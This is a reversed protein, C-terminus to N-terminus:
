FYPFFFALRFFKMWLKIFFYLIIEWNNSHCKLFNRFIKRFFVRVLHRSSFKAPTKPSIRTRIQSFNQFSGCFENNSRIGFFDDYFYFNGVDDQLNKLFLKQIKEIKSFSIKSFESSSGFSFEFSNKPVTFLSSATEAQSHIINIEWLGDVSNFFFFFFSNVLSNICLNELSNIGSNRWSNDSSDKFSGRFTGSSNGWSVEM